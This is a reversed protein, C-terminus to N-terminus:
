RSASGIPGMRLVDTQTQAWGHQVVRLITGVISIGLALDILPSAIAFAIQFLWAQPIGIFALGSPAAAGGRRSAEVPM